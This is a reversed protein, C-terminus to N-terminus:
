GTTVNTVSGTGNDTLQATTNNFARGSVRNLAASTNILIGTGACAVAAVGTCDNRSSSAHFEIGNGTCANASFGTVINLQAANNFYLGIGCAVANCGTISNYFTDVIVFGYVTCSTAVCAVITNHQPYGGNALQVVFGVNAITTATCAVMTSRYTQDGFEFGQSAFNAAACAVFKINTAIGSAAPNVNFGYLGDTSGYAICESITINNCALYVYFARNHAGSVVCGSALGDTAQQFNVGITWKLASSTVRANEVVAGAVNNARIASNNASAVSFKWSTYTGSGNSSSISLELTTGSYSSVTGQMWVNAATWVFITMGVQYNLGSQVTWTKTGSSGITNSTTSTAVGSHDFQGGSIHSYASLAIMPAPTSPESTRRIIAGPALLVTGSAPITITSSGCDYTGDPIFVVAGSGCIADIASQLASAVNTGGTNDISYCGVVDVVGSVALGSVGSLPLGTCNTLTGSSPTGLAGGNVVPAGASGVNVALATAVGTGLGSVESGIAVTAAGDKLLKGTTGDFKVFGNNTSSAPGVVDGSGSPATWTGDAKLFKNAAADGSAPAPVLGKVGGSGSDGTFADADISGVGTMNGSDDVTIASAQVGKGTGDSRILRNDNSFASAATVDGTGSVTAWQPNAGAGQTQLVQGTSGASLATWQSGDRYLIAGQTSSIGEALNRFSTAASDVDSLNNTSVLDGGGGGGSGIVTETGSSDRFAVKTTGSDDYAYLRATNAAPNGPTSIEAIDLYGTMTHNVVGSVNGSDDVTIASAQVKKTDTGDTRVLRNDTSGLGGTYVSETIAAEIDDLLANFDTEDVVTGEVAPNWSSSPATYTGSSRSM